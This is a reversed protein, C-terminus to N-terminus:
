WASLEARRALPQLHCSHTGRIVVVDDEMLKRDESVRQAYSTGDARALTDSEAALIEASCLPNKGNRGGFHPL